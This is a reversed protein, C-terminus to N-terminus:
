KVNEPTPCYYGARAKQALGYAPVVRIGLEILLFFELFSGFHMPVSSRLFFLFFLKLLM